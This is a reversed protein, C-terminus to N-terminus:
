DLHGLLVLIPLNICIDSLPAFLYLFHTILQIFLQGLALNLLQRSLFSGQLILSIFEFQLDEVFLDLLKLKIKFAEPLRHIGHSDSLHRFHGHTKALSM